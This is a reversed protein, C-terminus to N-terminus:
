RDPVYTPQRAVTPSALRPLGARALGQPYSHPYLPLSLAWNTSLIPSSSVQYRMGSERHFTEHTEAAYVSYVWSVCSVCSVPDM